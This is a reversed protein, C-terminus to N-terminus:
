PRAHEGGKMSAQAVALVCAAALALLLAFMAVFIWQGQQAFYGPSVVASYALMGIFFLYASRGWATERLLATGSVIMGLATVFEGALHFSIRIPETQLEPVQGAALFFAWQAAMMLGVFIGYFGALKMTQSGNTKDKKIEGIM